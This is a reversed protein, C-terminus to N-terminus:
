HTVVKFSTFYLSHHTWMGSEVRDCTSYVYSILPVIVYLEQLQKCWENGVLLPHRYLLLDGQQGTKDSFPWHGSILVDAVYVKTCHKADTPSWSMVHGLGNTVIFMWVEHAMYAAFHKLLCHASTKLSYITSPPLPNVSAITRHCAVVRKLHPSRENIRKRGMFFLALHFLVIHVIACDGERHAHSGASM